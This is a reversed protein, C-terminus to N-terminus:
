IGARPVHREKWPIPLSPDDKDAVVLYMIFVNKVMLTIVSAQLTLCLYLSYMVSFHKNILNEVLVSFICSEMKALIKM